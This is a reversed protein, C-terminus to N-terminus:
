RSRSASARKRRKPVLAAYADAYVAAARDWDAGDRGGTIVVLVEAGLAHTWEIARRVLDM